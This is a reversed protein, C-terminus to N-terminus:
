PHGHVPCTRSPQPTLNHVPCEMSVLAPETDPSQCDCDDPCSCGAVIRASQKPGIQKMIQAYTSQLTRMEDAELGGECSGADIWGDVNKALRLASKPSLRITILKERM